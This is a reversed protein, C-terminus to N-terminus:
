DDKGNNDSIAQNSKAVFVIGSRVVALMVTLGLWHWFNTFFFECLYKAVEM